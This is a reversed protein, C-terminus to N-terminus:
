LDDDYGNLEFLEICLQRAVVLLLCGVVLPHHTKKLFIKYEQKCGPIVLDDFLVTPMPKAIEVTNRCLIWCFVVWGAEILICLFTILISYRFNLTFSLLQQKGLVM